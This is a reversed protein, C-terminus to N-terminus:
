FPDFRTHSASTHRPNAIPSLPDPEPTSANWGYTDYRWHARGAELEVITFGEPTGWRSGKWWNGSVAGSTIYPTNRWYVTENVHTHGQLVAIVNHGELIPLVDYSNDVLFYNHKKGTVRDDPKYQGIASVLPIHTVVIVPTSPPLAKLDAALWLLQAADIRGEFEGDPTIGVSDLIIFHYGKRDFSYFTKSNYRQEFSKKAYLPDTNPVNAAPATGFVDHNGLAHHIPIGNLAQETRQYLDLLMTARERPVANVDFCHDGGQICFDPKLTAIKRLAKATGEAAALEPQTHTDTFFIFRLNGPKASPTEPLIPLATSAATAASLCLFNRRDLRM